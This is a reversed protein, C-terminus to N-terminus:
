YTTPEWRATEEEYITQESALAEQFGPPFLAPILERLAAVNALLEAAGPPYRGESEAQLMEVEAIVDALAADCATVADRIDLLPWFDM